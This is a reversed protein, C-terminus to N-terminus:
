RGGSVFCPLVNRLGEGDHKVLLHKQVGIFRQNRVEQVREQVTTTKMIEPDCDLCPIWLPFAHLCVKPRSSYPKWLVFCVLATSTILVLAATRNLEWLFFSVAVAFVILAAQPLMSLLQMVTSFRWKRLNDIKKQRYHSQQEKTGKSGPDDFNSIWKNVYFALSAVSINIALAVYCLIQSIVVAYALGNQVPSTFPRDPFTSGQALIKLLANTIGVPDPKLVSHTIFLLGSIVATM